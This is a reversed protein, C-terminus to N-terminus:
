EFIFLLKNDPTIEVSSAAFSEENTKDYIQISISRRQSKDLDKLIRYINQATIELRKHETM